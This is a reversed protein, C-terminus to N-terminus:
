QATSPLALALDLAFRRVTLAAKWFSSQPTRWGQMLLIWNLIVVGILKAYVVRHPDALSGAFAM